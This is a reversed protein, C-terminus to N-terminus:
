HGMYEENLSDQSPGKSCSDMLYVAPNCMSMCLHVSFCVAAPM